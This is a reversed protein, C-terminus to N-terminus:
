DESHTTNMLTRMKLGLYIVIVATVGVAIVSGLLVPDLDQGSFMKM